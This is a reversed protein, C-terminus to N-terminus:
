AACQRPPGLRSTTHYLTELQDWGNIIRWSLSAENGGRQSVMLNSHRHTHIHTHTHTHTHARMCMCHLFPSSSPSPTILTNGKDGIISSTNREGQEQLGRVYLYMSSTSYIVSNRMETIKTLMRAM